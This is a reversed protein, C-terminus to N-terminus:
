SKRRSLALWVGVVGLVVGGVVAGVLGTAEYGRQGAFSVSTFWNGGINAGAILGLLTGLVAGGIGAVVAKTARGGATATTTVEHDPERSLPM